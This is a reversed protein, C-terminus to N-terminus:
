FFKLRVTGLVKVVFM